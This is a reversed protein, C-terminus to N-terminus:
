SQRVVHHGRGEHQQFRQRQRRAALDISLSKRRRIVRTELRSMLEDRWARFGFLRESGNPGFHQINLTESDVIVEEIQSSVRQQCNTGNRADPVHEFQVEGRAGEEGVGRNRAQCLGQRFSFACVLANRSDSAALMGSRTRKGEGLLAKPEQVLQRWAARGVVNHIHDTKAPRQVRLNELLRELLQHVAM